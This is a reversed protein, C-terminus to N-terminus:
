FLDRELDGIILTFSDDQEHHVTVTPDNKNTWNEKSNM